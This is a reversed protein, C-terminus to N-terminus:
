YDIKGMKGIILIKQIVFLNLNLIEVQNQYNIIQKGFIVKLGIYNSIQNKGTELIQVIVMFIYKKGQFHKM